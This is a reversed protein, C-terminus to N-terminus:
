VGEFIEHESAHLGIKPRADDLSNSFRSGPHSSITDRGEGVGSDFGFSRAKESGVSPGGVSHTNGPSPNSSSVATTSSEISPKHRPTTGERAIKIILKTM